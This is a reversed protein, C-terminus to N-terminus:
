CFCAKNLEIFEILNLFYSIGTHFYLLCTVRRASQNAHARDDTRVLRPNFGYQNSQCLKQAKKILIQMVVQYSYKPM